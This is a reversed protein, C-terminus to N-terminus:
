KSLDVFKNSFEHQVALRNLAYTFDIIDVPEDVLQNFFKHCAYLVSTMEENLNINNGILCDDPLKREEKTYYVDFLATYFRQTKDNFNINSTTQLENNENTKENLENM